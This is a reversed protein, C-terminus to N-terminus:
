RHGGGEANGENTQIPATGHFFFKSGQDGVVCPIKDRAWNAGVNDSAFPDKLVFEVIVARQFPVLSLPDKTGEGMLRVNVIILGEARNGLRGREVHHEGQGDGVGPGNMLKIYLIHELM